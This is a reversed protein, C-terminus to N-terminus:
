EKLVERIEEETAFRLVVEQQVRMPFSVATSSGRGALTTKEPLGLLVGERYRPHPFFYWNAAKSEGGLKRVGLGQAQGLADFNGLWLTYDRNPDNPPHPVLALVIRDDHFTYRLRLRENGGPGITLTNKGEWVFQCPQRYRFVWKEGEALAPLGFCFNTNHIRGHRRRGASDLLYYSVGSTQDIKM